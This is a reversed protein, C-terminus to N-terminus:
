KYLSVGVVGTMIIIIALIQKTTLKEKFVLYGTIVGVAPRIGAIAMTLPVGIKEIGQNIGLTGLSGFFGIIIGVFLMDRPITGLIKEKKVILLHFLATSLVGLEIFISTNIAGIHPIPYNWIFYGIGWLIAAFIAYIIGSNKDFVNSEKFEKFNFTILSAGLLIILVFLLGLMSIKQGLFIFSLLIPFIINIDVIPVIVGIKGKTIAKIFLLLPFYGYIGFLYTIFFWFYNTQNTGYIYNYITLFFASFFTQLIVGRIIGVSNGTIKSLANSIGYGIPALIAYFM